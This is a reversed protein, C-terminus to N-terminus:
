LNALVGVVTVVTDAYVRPTIMELTQFSFKSSEWSDTGRSKHPLLFMVFRKEPAGSSIHFCNFHNLSISHM